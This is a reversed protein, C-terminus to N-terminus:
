GLSPTARAIILWNNFPTRGAPARFEAALGAQELWARLQTPKPQAKFSTGMWRVAHGFRDNIRTWSARLSGDDLGSRIIFVGDPALCRAANVLLARQAAPEVYQLVDLLVVSGQHAPFDRTLDRVEFQADATADQQITGQAIAIKAADIDVGRYQSHIGRSRLAHLTLGIGCGVDLIPPRNGDLLTGVEEYLPDLALKSLSYWYHYRSPLYRQAIGRKNVQQRSAAM